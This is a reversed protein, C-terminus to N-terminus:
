KKSFKLNKPDKFTDSHKNTAMSKKKSAVDVESLQVKGGRRGLLPKILWAESHLPQFAKPVGPLAFLGLLFAWFFRPPGCKEPPLPDFSRSNKLPKSSNKTKLPQKFVKLFFTKATSKIPKNQKQQHKKQKLFWLAVEQPHGLSGAAPELRGVGGTADLVERGVGDADGTAAERPQPAVSPVELRGRTRCVAHPALCLYFFPSAKLTTKQQVLPLLFFPKPWRFALIKPLSRVKTKPKPAM